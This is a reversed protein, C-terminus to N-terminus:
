RIPPSGNRTTSSPRTSRTATPTSATSRSSRRSAAPAPRRRAVRSLTVASGGNLRSFAINAYYVTNHPGFAIAPDGASDMDSLAGTAGTQFTLHPLQVDTWTKGGDFTTYAWGSGDNRNERTNFIRYDNTGAVLNKPNCPNIAITTENQAPQCGTQSGASVVHRRQDPRRQSSPQCVPELRRHVVPM